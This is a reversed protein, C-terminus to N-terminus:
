LLHPQHHYSITLHRWEFDESAFEFWTATRMAATQMISKVKFKNRKNHSADPQTTGQTSELLHHNEWNEVVSAESDSDNSGNLLRSQAPSLSYSSQSLAHSSRVSGNDFPLQPAVQQASSAARANRALQELYNDVSGPVRISRHAFWLSHVPRGDQFAPLVRSM